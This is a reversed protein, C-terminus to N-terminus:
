QHLFQRCLKYQNSVYCTCWTLPITNEKAMHKGRFISRRYPNENSNICFFFLFIRNEFIEAPFWKPCSLIEYPNINPCFFIRFKTEGFNKPKLTLEKQSPPSRSCFPLKPFLDILIKLNSLPRKSPHHPQSKLLFLQLTKVMLQKYFIKMIFIQCCRLYADPQM